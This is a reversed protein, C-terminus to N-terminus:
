PDGIRAKNRYAERSTKLLGQLLKRVYEMETSLNKVQKELDAFELQYQEFNVTECRLEEIKRAVHPFRKQIYEWTEDYFM